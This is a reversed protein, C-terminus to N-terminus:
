KNKWLEWIKHRIRFGFEDKTPENSERFKATEFEDPSMGLSLNRLMKNITHLGTEHNLSELHNVQVRSTRIRYLALNSYVVEMLNQFETSKEGFLDDLYVAISITLWDLRCISAHRTVFSEDSNIWRIFKHREKLDRWRKHYHYFYRFFLEGPELPMTMHGLWDPQSITTHSCFGNEQFSLSLLRLPISFRTTGPRKKLMSKSAFEAEVETRNDYDTQEENYFFNIASQGRTWRRISLLCSFIYQTLSLTEENTSFNELENWLNDMHILTSDDPGALGYEWMKQLHRAKLLDKSLAPKGATNQADFFTFALEPNRVTTQQVYMKTWDKPIESIREGIRDKATSLYSSRAPQNHDEQYNLIKLWNDSSGSDSKEHLILLFCILRQQGDVVDRCTSRFDNGASNDTCDKEHIIFNGLFHCDADIITDLLTDVHKSEWEFPRQYSPITYMGESINGDGPNLFDELTLLKVEVEQQNNSM